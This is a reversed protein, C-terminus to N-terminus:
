QGTGPSPFEIPHDREFHKQLWLHWDIAQYEPHSEPKLLQLQKTSQVLGLVSSGFVGFYAPVHPPHDINAILPKTPIQGQYTWVYGVDNDITFYYIRDKWVTPGSLMRVKSGALPAPLPLETVTDTAPDFVTAGPRYMKDHFVIGNCLWSHKDDVMGARGTTPDVMFTFTGHLGGGALYLKPVLKKAGFPGPMLTISGCNFAARPNFPLEGRKARERWEHIIKLSPGTRADMTAAALWTRNPVDDIDLGPGISGTIYAFGPSAGVVAAWILEDPPVGNAAAAIWMKDHDPDYVKVVAVHNDVGAWWVYKGDFSPGPGDIYTGLNRVFGDDRLYYCEFLDWRGMGYVANPTSQVFLDAHPGAHIWRNNDFIDKKIPLNMRVMRFDSVVHADPPEPPAPQTQPHLRNYNGKAEGAIFEKAASVAVPNDSHEMHSLISELRPMPRWRLFYGIPAGATCVDTLRMIFSAAQNDDLGPKVYGPITSDIVQRLVLSAYADDIDHAHKYAMVRVSSDWLESNPVFRAIVRTFDFDVFFHPTMVTHDYVFEMHQLCREALPTCSPAIVRAAHALNDFPDNDPGQLALDGNIKLYLSRAAGIHYDTNDPDLLLAAEYMEAADANFSLKQLADGKDALERAQLKPAMAPNGGAAKNVLDNAAAPLAAAAAPVVEQRSSWSGLTQDGRTLELSVTVQADPAVSSHEMKKSLIMPEKRILNRQGAIALETKLAEAEAFEVLVLDDRDALPEEVLRRFAARRYDFRTTLDDSSWPAVAVIKLGARASKAIAKAVADNAADADKEVSEARPLTVRLLDVGQTTECTTVELRRTPKEPCSIFVLFDAHLLQGLKARAIPSDASLLLQLKQEQMVQDLHTREVLTIGSQQLAIEVLPTLKPADEGDAAIVAVRSAARVPVCILAFFAITLLAIGQARGRRIM